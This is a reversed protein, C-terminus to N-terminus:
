KNTKLRFKDFYSDVTVGGDVDIKLKKFQKKIKAEKYEQQKTTIWYLMMCISDCIDHERDYKAMNILLQKRVLIKKAEKVTFEKRQDYNLNGIGFFKYVSNPSVLFAKERFKSFFLQEIMCFGMPPQREILIFDSKDFLIKNEQYVHNVWDCATKAHYLKCDQESSGHLHQYETINILETWLIEVVEYMKNLTTISIGLHIIGIDISMVCYKYEKPEEWIEKEKKDKKKIEQKPLRAKSKDLVEAGRKKKKLKDKVSVQICVDETDSVIVFETFQDNLEEYDYNLTSSMSM